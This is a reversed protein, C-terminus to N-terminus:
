AQPPQAARGPDFFPELRAWVPDLEGALSKSARGRITDLDRLDERPHRLRFPLFGTQRAGITEGEGRLRLDEEALQFGDAKTRFAELREDASEGGETVTFFCWAEEGRRGLRGRLQHLQSLGFRDAGEIWLVTLGPVDLGVEVLTTAVLLPAEGTRFRAVRALQEAVPLRGHLETVTFRGLPSERLQAALRTVSPLGKESLLSVGEPVADVWMGEDEGDDDIRPVVFLVRHGAEIEKAIFGFSDELRDPAVRHTKVPQRGPPLEDITSLEFDGVLALALTRPIPTASLHLRHVGEGKKALARRQGVGFRQEEDVIVLGLRRFEVDASLLAHTGVVLECEGSALQDRVSRSPDSGAILLESRVRAGKLLEAFTDHHQRALPATPALLAVQVGAAIAALAAYVAVATKGSGVEGQVLRAMPYGRALDETLEGVVRNQAGTLRYPFRGRIREDIEATVEIVLARQEERLARRRLQRLSFLFLECEGLSALAISREALSEPFHIARYAELITRKGGHSLSGSPWRHDLALRPDSCLDSIWRALAEGDIGETTPYVPRLRNHGPARETPDETPHLRPHVLQPGGYRRIVGTAFGIWEPGIRPARNEPGFWVLAVREGDVDLVATFRPRTGGKFEVSRVTGHLTIARGEEIQSVPVRRTLDDHRVPFHHLMDGVRAIGLRALREARRPGVGRLVTVPELLFDGDLFDGDWFDGDWFDGDM